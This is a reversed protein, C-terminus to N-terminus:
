RPLSGSPASVDASPPGQFSWGTAGWNVGARAGASSHPRTTAESRDQSATQRAAQPRKYCLTSGSEPCKPWQRGRSVRQSLRHSVRQPCRWSSVPLRAELNERKEGVFPIGTVACNQTGGHVKYKCRTGGVVMACWAEGMARGILECTVPQLATELWNECKARM